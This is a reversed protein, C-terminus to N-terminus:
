NKNSEDLYKLLFPTVTLQKNRIFDVNMLNMIKNWETFPHTTKIIRIPCACHFYTQIAGTKEGVFYQIGDDTKKYNIYLQSSFYKFKKCSERLYCKVVIGTLELIENCIQKRLNRSDTLSVIESKTFDNSHNLIKELILNLDKNGKIKEQLNHIVNILLERKINEKRNELELEKKVEFYNPVPVLRSQFIIFENGKYQLICEIIEGYKEISEEYLDVLKFLENNLSLNKEFFFTEFKGNPYILVSSFHVGKKKFIRLGADFELSQWNTLKIEKNNVDEKIALEKIICDIAAKKDYKFNEITVHQVIFKNNYVDHEDSINNNEYFDKENIVIINYANESVEKRVEIREFVKKLEHFLEDFYEKAGFTNSKLILYIKGKKISNYRESQTSNDVFKIEHWDESKEFNITIYKNLKLQILEILESIVGIKSNNFEEINSFNLYDKENKVGNFQKIIFSNENSKTRALNGNTAIQYKPYDYIKKKKFSLRDKETLATFTKLSFNLIMQKDLKIELAIIQKVEGSKKRLYWNPNTCFMKGTINNIAMSRNSYNSLLNILLQALLYEPIDKVEIVEYSLEERGLSHMFNNLAISNFTDRNFLAYFNKGNQFIISNCLNETTLDDLFYAGYEIYKKSTTFQYLVFDENIKRKDFKCNLQNILIEKNM